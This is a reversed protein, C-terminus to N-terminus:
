KPTIFKYFNYNFYCLISIIDVFLFLYDYQFVAIISRFSIVNM